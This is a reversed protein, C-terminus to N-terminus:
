IRGFYERRHFETKDEAQEFRLAEASKIQTYYAVFDAGFAEVLATDQGLAELAEGLSAPLKHAQNNYPDDTAQPARLQREIGDLGAHIQSAM